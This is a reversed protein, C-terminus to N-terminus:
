TVHSASQRAAYLDRALTEIATGDILTDILARPIASIGNHAGSIAGAIAAITDVDGGVRLAREITAPYDETSALFCYLSALTTPVAMVNIGLGDVPKQETAVVIATLAATEDLDLWENLHHLCGRLPETTAIRELEGLYVARDVVNTTAALAVAQAIVLAADIGVPHGHTVLSATEVGERMADIPEGAFWLGLPSIRMAAGNFPLDEPDAAERWDVGELIKGIARHAVPGAGIITKDRWLQAIENAIDAGDVRGLRAMSHATAVTLQTDDTYQGAPYERFPRYYGLLKDQQAIDARSKGEIWAGLADGVACGLLAGAYQDADPTQREAM